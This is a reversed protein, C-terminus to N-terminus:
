PKEKTKQIQLYNVYFYDAVSKQAPWLLVFCVLGESHTHDWSVHLSHKVNKQPATHETVTPPCSLM